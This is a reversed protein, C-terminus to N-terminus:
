REGKLAQESLHRFDEIPANNNARRNISRMISLLEKNKAKLQEIEIRRTEVLTNLPVLKNNVECTIKITPEAKKVFELCFFPYTYGCDLVISRGIYRVKFTQGIFHDMIWSDEWGCEGSKAARLVRVTDGVEVNYTKVWEAQLVQYAENVSM